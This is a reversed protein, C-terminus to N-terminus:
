LKPKLREQSSGFKEALLSRLQVETMTLSCSISLDVKFNWRVLHLM